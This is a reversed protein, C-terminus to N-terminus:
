ELFLSVLIIAGDTSNSKIEIVLLYKNIEIGFVFTNYVLTNNLQLTFTKRSLLTKGVSM